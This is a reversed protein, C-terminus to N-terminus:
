FYKVFKIINTKRNIIVMVSYDWDRKKFGLWVLLKKWLSQQYGYDIGIHYNLDTVHHEM